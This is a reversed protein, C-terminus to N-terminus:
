SLMIQPNQWKTRILNLSMSHRDVKKNKKKELLLRCVLNERSQLESTHEESRFSERCQTVRTAVRFDRPGCQNNAGCAYAVFRASFPHPAMLFRLPCVAPLRIPQISANAAAQMVGASALAASVCMRRASGTREIVGSRSTASRLDPGD